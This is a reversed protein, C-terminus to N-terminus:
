FTLSSRVSARVIQKRAYIVDRLRRQKIISIDNDITVDSDNYLPIQYMQTGCGPTNMKFPVILCAKIEMAKPACYFQYRVSM